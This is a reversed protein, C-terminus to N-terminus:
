ECLGAGGIVRDSPKRHVVAEVDQQLAQLLLLLMLVHQQLVRRQQLARQQFM